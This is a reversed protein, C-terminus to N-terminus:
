SRGVEEIFKVGGRLRKHGAVRVALWAVIEREMEREWNAKNRRGAAAATGAGVGVEEAGQDQAVVVYATPVETAQRGDYVGVAAVDVIELHSVM